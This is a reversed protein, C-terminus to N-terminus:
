GGTARAVCAWASLGAFGLLVVGGAVDAAAMWWPKRWRGAVAMLGSFGVVWLGTGLFVGAAMWFLMERGGEGVQSLAQSTFGGFWFALTMPNVATMAVGTAYVRGLGPAGTSPAATGPPASEGIQWGTKMAARAARLCGVGLYVLLVTGGVALPWFVWASKAAVSMGAVAAVAYVVDVSVAGFGLAMGHAWGRTLSRRAMEVNVPGIPAAAGLGFLVGRLVVEVWDM